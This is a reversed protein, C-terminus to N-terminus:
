SKEIARIKFGLSIWDLEINRIALPMDAYEPERAFQVVFNARWADLKRALRVHAEVYEGLFAEYEAGGPEYKEFPEGIAKLREVTRRMAKVRGEFEGDLEGKASGGGQRGKTALWAGRFKYAETDEASRWREEEAEEETEEYSPKSTTTTKSSASSSASASASGDYGYTWDFGNKERHLPRRGSTRRLADARRERSSSAGYSTSADDDDDDVLEVENTQSASSSSSAACPPRRRSWRASSARRVWRRRGVVVNPSASACRMTSQLTADIRELM